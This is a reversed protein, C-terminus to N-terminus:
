FLLYYTLASWNKEEVRRNKLPTSKLNSPKGKGRKGGTGQDFQM